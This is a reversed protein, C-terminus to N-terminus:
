KTFAQRFNSQVFKGTSTTIVNYPEYTQQATAIALVFSALGVCLAMDLCYKKNM